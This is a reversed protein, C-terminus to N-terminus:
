DFRLRASAGVNTTLGSSAGAVARGGVAFEASVVNTTARAQFAATNLTVSSATKSAGLGAFAGASASM